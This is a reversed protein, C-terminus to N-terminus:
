NLHPFVMSYYVSILTKRNIFKKIKQLLGLYRSGNKKKRLKILMIKGTLKEDVTVGLYNGMENQLQM